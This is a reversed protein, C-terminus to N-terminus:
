LNKLYKDTLTKITNSIETNNEILFKDNFEEEINAKYFINDNLNIYYLDDTGKFNKKILNKKHDYINKVSVIYWASFKLDGNSIALFVPISLKSELNIFSEIDHKSIGFENNKNKGYNKVDVFVRFINDLMLILDPRKARNDRLIDCMSIKNNDIYFFMKKKNNLFDIFKYEAFKGKVLNLVNYNKKYNESIINNITEYYLFKLSDISNYISDLIEYNYYKNDTLNIKVDNISQKILSIDKLINSDKNNVDIGFDASLIKNIDQYLDLKKFDINKDKFALKLIEFWLIISSNNKCIEDEINKINDTTKKYDEQASFAYYELQEIGDFLNYLERIKDINTM